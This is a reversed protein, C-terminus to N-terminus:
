NNLEYPMRRQNHSNIKSVVSSSTFFQMSLISYHADAHDIGGGGRAREGRVGGGRVGEGEGEGGGGGGEGLGGWFRTARTVKNWVKPIKVEMESVGHVQNGRGATNPLEKM